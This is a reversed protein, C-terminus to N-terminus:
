GRLFLSRTEVGQKVESDCPACRFTIEDMNKLTLSPEIKLLSMSLGCNPCPIAAYPANGLFGGTQM